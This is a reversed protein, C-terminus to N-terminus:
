DKWDHRIVEGALIKNQRGREVTIKGNVIVYPVGDPYEPPYNEFPYKHPWMNTARDKIKEMDIITVDAIMGPRLLGRDFLGIKQAPFSTMKRVAEQMSLVAEKKVYREFIGPYEGFACPWYPTPGKKTFGDKSWTSCDSCVMVLPHALVYKIDEESIYDFLAVIKNEEEVFLDFYTEFPDKGRKKAIQEVTKGNLNKQKPVDLMFIRDFKQHKLLGAPGFAPLKDEIIEKKVRRRNEPKKMHEILDPMTLEHLYQPLGQALTPSLDTHVDNDSTVDMGRLRAAEVLGLIEKARGWAGYKPCNHSVEVRCGSKEGIYLAEKVADAYMEREGRVHSTYMGGYKAVVKCLAVIEPTKGFCSPPYVLGTSMGFAGARMAEDVLAKMQDLQKKDPVGRDAGMIATRVAGHGVLAAINCGIGSKELFKLYDDFTRWKAKSLVGTWTGWYNAMTEVNPERLPAVSLGCNGVLHTTVGQRLTSDCGPFAIATVDSHTHIDIFGPCVYQGKASVVVDCDKGEIRGIKAIKKGKIGVDGYYWPNGCGDVIRGGLVGIDFAM